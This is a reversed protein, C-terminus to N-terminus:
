AAQQKLDKNTYLWKKIRLAEKELRRRNSSQKLNSCVRYLNNYYDVMRKYDSPSIFYEVDSCTALPTDRYYSEEQATIHIKM